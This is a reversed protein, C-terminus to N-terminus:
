SLKLDFMRCVTYLPINVLWDQMKFDSMSTRIAVTEPFENKMMRLSKAKLNEEAKVEIAYILSGNQTM